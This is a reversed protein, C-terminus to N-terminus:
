SNLENFMPLFIYRNGNVGSGPKAPSAQPCTDAVYASLEEEVEREGQERTM